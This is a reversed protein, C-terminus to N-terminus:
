HTNKTQSLLRDLEGIEKAQEFRNKCKDCDECDENAPHNETGHSVWICERGGLKGCPKKYKGQCNVSHPPYEKFDHPIDKHCKFCHLPGVVHLYNLSESM